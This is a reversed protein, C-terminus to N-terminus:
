EGFNLKFLILIKLFVVIQNSLLLLDDDVQDCNDEIQCVKSMEKEHKRKKSKKKKKVDNIDSNKKKKKKKKSACKDLTESTDTCRNSDNEDCDSVSEKINNSKRKNDSKLKDQMQKLLIAEHEEIRKLKGNLKLGHRAGKHATRGGCKTFMEEDTVTYKKSNIIDEEESLEEEHRIEESCGDETNTLTSTKIFNGYLVTKKVKKENEKEVKKVDVGTETNNVTISNAAENFMQDWWNNTFEKSPDHGVGKKNNKISVKIHSKIGQEDKGLGSGSVWGYKALQDQAFKCEAM